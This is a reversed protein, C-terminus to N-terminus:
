DAKGMINRADPSRYGPRMRSRVLDIVREAGTNQIIKMAPWHIALARLCLQRRCDAGRTCGPVNRGHFDGAPVDVREIHAQRLQLLPQAFERRVHDPQLFGLELVVAEGVVRQGREAVAAHEVPLLGVVADRDEGAVAREVLHLDRNGTEVVRLRAGDGRRDAIRPDDIKVHDVALVDAALFVFVLQTPEVGRVVPDGVFQAPMRLQHHQAVEVDRGVVTVHVIGRDPVVLM